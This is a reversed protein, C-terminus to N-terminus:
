KKRRFIFYFVIEVALMGLLVVPYSYKWGIEPMHRFNMGYIGTIVTLPGVLMAMFTLRESSNNQRVMISSDYLNQIQKVQEVLSMAYDALKKIRTSVMGFVPLSQKKVFGNENVLVAEGIYVMPRTHKKILNVQGRLENIKRFNEDTAKHLIQTELEELEDEMRELAAFMKGLIYDFIHYYVSNHRDRHGNQAKSAIFNVLESRVSESNSVFVIFREGVYINVEERHVKDYLYDFYSINFFDYDSFSEFRSSDDITRCEEITNLDFGNAEIFGLLETSDCVLFIDALKKDVAAADVRTVTKEGIHFATM